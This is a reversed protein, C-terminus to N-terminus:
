RKRRYLGKREGYSEALKDAMAYLITVTPNSHNLARQVKEIDGYKRMLDVAFSKRMSHTGYAGKLRFAKAARDIDRWVAQRTRPKTPDKPSPFAWDSGGARFKIDAILQDSLGVKRRKGTKQETIWFCRSLQSIRLALVDGVRLGSYLMVRCVLRNEPQLSALIMELQTDLLYKTTM